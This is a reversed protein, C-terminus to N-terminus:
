LLTQSFTVALGPIRVRNAYDVGSHHAEYDACVELLDPHVDLECYRYKYGHACAASAIRPVGVVIAMSNHWAGPVCGGAGARDLVTWNVSNKDFVGAIRDAFASGRRM